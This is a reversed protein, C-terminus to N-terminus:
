TRLGFQKLPATANQLARRNEFYLQVERLTDEPDAFSRGISKM